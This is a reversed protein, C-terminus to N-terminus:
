DVTVPICDAGEATLAACLIRADAREPFGLVRLRYLTRGGSQTEQIVHDRGGLFEEFANQLRGWESDAIEPSDFAGLQVLHTGAPVAEAAPAPAAVPAPAPAATVAAPAPAPAAAPVPAPAATGLAAPRAPPKPAVAVGPVEAPLLAVAAPAPPVPATQVAAPEVVGAETPAPMTGSIGDAFALIEQTTMPRDNPVLAAVLRAPGESPVPAAEAPAIPAAAPESALPAAAVEAVPALAQAAVALSPEPASAGAAPPAPPIVIAPEAAPEAAALTVPEAAPMVEGEEANTQLVVEMDEEALGPTQPALVLVDSPPAVTGAAPIANVALGQQPVVEGGPDAPAIRMPGEEAAIVPLGMVERLVLKYGWVGIVAIFALSLIGGGAWVALRAKALPGDAAANYQALESVGPAHPPEDDTGDHYVAREARLASATPRQPEAAARLTPERRM